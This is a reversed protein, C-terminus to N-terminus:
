YLLTERNVSRKVSRPESPGHSQTPLQTWQLPFSTPPPPLGGVSPGPTRTFTVRIIGLCRSSLAEVGNLIEVKCADSVYLIKKFIQFEYFCLVFTIAQPQLPPPTPPLRAHNSVKTWPFLSEATLHILDSSRVHVM